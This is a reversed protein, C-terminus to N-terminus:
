AFKRVCSYVDRGYNHLIVSLMEVKREHEIYRRFYEYIDASEKQFFERVVVDPDKMKNVVDESNFLKLFKKIKKRSSERKPECSKLPNKYRHKELVTFEEFGSIRLYKWYWVTMVGYIIAGTFECISTFIQETDNTLLLSLQYIKFLKANDVLQKFTMVVARTNLIVKVFKEFKIFTFNYPQRNYHLYYCSISPTM